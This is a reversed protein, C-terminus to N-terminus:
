KRLKDFIFRRVKKNLKKSHEYITHAYEETSYHATISGHKDFLEQLNFDKILMTAEENTVNYIEMLDEKVFGIFEEIDKQQENM